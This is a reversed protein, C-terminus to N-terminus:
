REDEDGDVIRLRRLVPHVEVQGRHGVLVLSGKDGVQLRQASAAEVDALPRVHGPLHHGVGVAVLEAHDAV